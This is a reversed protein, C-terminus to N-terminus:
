DGDGLSSKLMMSKVYYSKASVYEENLELGEIAVYNEDEAIINIVRAEYPVEEEEEEGEENEDHAEEKSDEQISKEHETHKENEKPIFIVWENNFFSLASKEVSLYKKDAQFYLTSKVFSNIFLDDVKEDVSSLIIIRQTNEDVSPLIQTIHTVINNSLYNVVLKQGINITSAYKLPLFSKIYYAQEKVINIVAEDEKIVTHLPQLLELVKGDSHAYLIFNPTAKKLKDADINLTKLQSKLGTIKALMANMEINKNNLEQMSTMGNDYLKKIAQYNKSLTTYQKSLSVYDATMKSVFISEIEAVKQGSKVRQGVNVFYKKLHGSIQSTISQSANSLQIVQSNLEVSHWFTREQAHKTPIEISLLQSVLLPILLYIKKTMIYGKITTLLLQMKM